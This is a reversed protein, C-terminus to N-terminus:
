AAVARGSSEVWHLLVRDTLETTGVQIRVHLVGGPLPLDTTRAPRDDDAGQISCGVGASVLAALVVSGAFSSRLARPKSTSIAHDEALEPTWSRRRRRSGSPPAVRSTDSSAWGRAM